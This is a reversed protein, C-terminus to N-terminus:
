CLWEEADFVEAEGVGRLMIVRRIAGSLVLADLGRRKFDAPGAAHATVLLPVGLSACELAANLEDKGGLEDAALACPAMGRALMMLAQGKPLGDAVDTNAGVDLQPVGEYLAALEGREDAVGVSVGAISLRRVIDRLMTTKGTGPAGAILTGLPRSNELILPFVAKAADPVDRAVRVCVSSIDRLRGGSFTGCLGLRHGGKLPAFGMGSQFSLSQLAHATLADAVLRLTQATIITKGSQACNGTEVVLPQGARLRIQRAKELPLARAEARLEEPLCKLFDM